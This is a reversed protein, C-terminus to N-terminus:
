KYIKDSAYVECSFLLSSCVFIGGSHRWRCYRAIAVRYFHFPWGTFWCFYGYMWELDYRYPEPYWLCFWARSVSAKQRSCMFIHQSPQIEWCRPRNKAFVFHDHAHGQVDWGPLIAPFAAYVPFLGSPLSLVSYFHLESNGRSTDIPRDLCSYDIFNPLSAKSRSLFLLPEFCNYNPM